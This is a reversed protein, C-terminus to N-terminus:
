DEFGPISEPGGIDKLFQDFDVDPKKAKMSRKLEQELRSRVEDLDAVPQNTEYQLLEMYRYFVSECGHDALKQKFAQVKPDGAGSAESVKEHVRWFLWQDQYSVLACDELEEIKARGDEIFRHADTMGKYDLDWDRDLLSLGTKSTYSRSMAAEVKVKMTLEDEVSWDKEPQAISIDWKRGRRVIIEEKQLGVSMRWGLPGVFRNIASGAVFERPWSGILWFIAYDSAFLFTRAFVTSVIDKKTAISPDIAYSTDINFVDIILSLYIPAAYYIRAIMGLVILTNLVIPVLFAQKKAAVPTKDVHVVYIHDSPLTSTFAELGGSVAEWPTPFKTVKAPTTSPKPTSTSKFGKRARAM